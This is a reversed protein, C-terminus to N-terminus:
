NLYTEIFKQLIVPVPLTKLDNLHILNNTKLTKINIKVFNIILKQHTLQHHMTEQIWQLQNIDQYWDFDKILNKLKNSTTQTQTEILLFEYLGGWIDNNSRKQVYVQNQEDILVVYLLFRKKIKIKNIKIPLQKQMQNANAWCSNALVCTECKPQHVSCHKSGFEMIAQNFLDPHQDDILTSALQYFHQYAKSSAINTQEGFYRSLVRYVNGDVVPINEKFCFSAIAAATYNGIGKLKLLEKFSKPFVGNLENVIHKATHHLNRARSYYGLGQWLKLVEDESANALHHITPFHEVFKQYYPLGQKVQTQQLIIESLWVEYPNTTLRWPLDRKHDQYWTILKESFNHSVM